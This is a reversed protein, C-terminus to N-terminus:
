HRFAVISLKSVSSMFRVIRRLAVRHHICIANTDSYRLFLIRTALKTEVTQLFRLVFYLLVLHVVFGLPLGGPM